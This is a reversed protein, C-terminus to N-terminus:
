YSLNLKKLLKDFESLTKEWNDNKLIYNSLDAKRDDSWQFNMRKIIELELLNDRKIIRVIRKKYPAIVLIIFDCKKYFGSEFLLATEYIVFDDNSNTKVFDEFKKRVEPHVISNLLSLKNKDNFVIKSLKNRDLKGKIYLDLGFLSQIKDRLDNDLLRKAVLDSNFCNINRKEFLNLVSTKGAGIGGTLGIIKM